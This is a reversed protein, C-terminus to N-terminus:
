LLRLLKSFLINQRMPKFVDPKNQPPPPPVLPVIQGGGGSLPKARGSM